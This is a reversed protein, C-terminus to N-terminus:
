EQETEKASSSPLVPEIKPMPGAQELAAQVATAYEEHRAIM